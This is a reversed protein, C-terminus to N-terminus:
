HGRKHVKHVKSTVVARCANAESGELRPTQVGSSGIIATALGDYQAAAPNVKEPRADQYRLLWLARRLGARDLDALFARSYDGLDGSYSIQGSKKDVNM